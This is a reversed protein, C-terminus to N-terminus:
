KKKAVVMLQSSGFITALVEDVFNVLISIPGRIFKVLYGLYDNTFLANRLIGEREYTNVIRFGYSTLKNTLSKKAYRRLHGVKKDFNKLFGLRYLPASVSPVTIILKGGKKMISYIKELVLNEDPIHELVESALVIDFKRRIKLWTLSGAVFNTNKKFPAQPLSRKAVEIARPSIDLGFVKNGKSALYFSLTGVGCGYDLINSKKKINNKLLELVNIYTFNTDKIVKQYSRSNRHFRNYKMIPLKVILSNVFM